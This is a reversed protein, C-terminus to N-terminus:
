HAMLPILMYFYTFCRGCRQVAGTATELLGNEDVRTICKWSIVDTLRICQQLDPHSCIILICTFLCWEPPQSSKFSAASVSKRHTCRPLYFWELTLVGNFLISPNLRVLWKFPWAVWNWKSRTTHLSTEKKVVVISTTFQIKNQPAEVFSSFLQWIKVCVNIDGQPRLSYSTTM